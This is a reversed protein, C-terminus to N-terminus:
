PVKSNQDISAHGIWHRQQEVKQTGAAAIHTQRHADRQALVEAGVFPYIRDGAAHKQVNTQTIHYTRLNILLSTM